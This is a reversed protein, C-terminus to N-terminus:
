ARPTPRHTSTSKDNTPKKDNLRQPDVPELIKQLNLKPGEFPLKDTMDFKPM